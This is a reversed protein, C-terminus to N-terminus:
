NDRTRSLVNCLLQQATITVSALKRRFWAHRVASQFAASLTIFVLIHQKSVFIFSYDIRTPIKYFLKARIPGFLMMKIDYESLYLYTVNFLGDTVYIYIGCAPLPRRNIYVYLYVIYAHLCIVTYCCALTKTWSMLVCNVVVFQWICYFNMVNVFVTISCHCPGVVDSIIKFQVEIM